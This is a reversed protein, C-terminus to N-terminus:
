KALTPTAEIAGWEVLAVDAIHQLFTWWHGGHDEATYQREGFPKNSPPELIKTGHSKAQEFHRNVDDVTVVVYQNVRDRPSGFTGGCPGVMIAGELFSLQAHTISGDRGLARLREVFGFAGCLWTIAQSVDEYIVVPVVTATPASRNVPTKPLGTM